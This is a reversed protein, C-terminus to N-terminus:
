PCPYPTPPTPPIGPITTSPGPIGDAGPVGPIVTDPTGPSGPTYCTGHDTDPPLPRHVPRPAVPQELAPHEASQRVADAAESEELSLPQQLRMDVPTGAYLYFHHSQLLVAISAIMGIAGGVSTGIATGKMTNGPITLSQTGPNSCGPTPVGCTPPLTNTIVTDHANAAFHGILAGLGFGALPLGVGAAGRGKGPDKLAYGEDSMLTAPGPVPAVYGDPFTISMSQLHLEARGGRLELRDVTGQVFTGPPILVHNGSNVPSTIQAYIDDGRHIYRSQIPHTLVLAIRTGAPITETAPRPTVPAQDQVRTQPEQTQPEPASPLQSQDQDQAICAATLFLATALALARRANTGALTLFAIMTSVSRRSHNNAM